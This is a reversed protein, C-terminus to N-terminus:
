YRHHVTGSNMFTLSYTVIDGEDFVNGAPTTKNIILDWVTPDLSECDTNNTGENLM